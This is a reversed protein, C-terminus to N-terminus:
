SSIRAARFYTPTATSLTGTLPTASVSGGTISFCVDFYDTAVCNYAIGSVKFHQNTGSGTPWQYMGGRIAKSSEMTGNARLNIEVFTPQTSYSVMLCVEFMYTGGLGTPITIRSNNTTNDHFADTDYTEGGFPVPTSLSPTYATSTVFTAMVAAQRIRSEHDIVDNVVVNWDAAPLTEGAVHTTPTTYAM